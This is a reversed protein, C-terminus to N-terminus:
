TKELMMYGMTGVSSMVLRLGVAFMLDKGVAVRALQQKYTSCFATQHLGTKKLFNETAFTDGGSM